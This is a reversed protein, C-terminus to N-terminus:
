HWRLNRSIIHSRTDNKCIIYNSMFNVIIKIYQYKFKADESNATSLSKELKNPTVFKNSTAKKVNLYKAM